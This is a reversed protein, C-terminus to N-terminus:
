TKPLEKVLHVECRAGNGQRYFVRDMLSRILHLGLGGRRYHALYEKMDPAKIEDPDFSKGDHTIVIEIEKEGPIVRIDIDRDPANQYSHKIVNTCAEDCCLAIKHVADDRFGIDRACESVFERVERLRDTRSKIRLHTRVPKKPASM